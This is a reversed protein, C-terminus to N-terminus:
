ELIKLIQQRNHNLAKVLSDLDITEEDLRKVQLNFDGVASSRGIWYTKNSEGQLIFGLDDWGYSEADGDEAEIMEVVEALSPRYEMELYVSQNVFHPNSAGSRIFRLFGQVMDREVKKYTSVHGRRVVKRIDAHHQIVHERLGPKVVASTKFSPRVKKPIDDDDDTYGLVNPNVSSTDKWIAYSTFQSLFRNVYGVMNTQGSVPRGFRITALLDMGPIFWFYTAYGPISNKPISNLTVQPKGVKSDLQVSAIGAEHSPVENWTALVWTDNEKVIGFLYVPEEDSKGSADALKTQSLDVGSGWSALQALTDELSGFEPAAIGHRYYGCRDVRFFSVKATESKSM